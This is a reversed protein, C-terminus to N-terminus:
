VMTYGKWCMEWEVVRGLGYFHLGEEGDDKEDGHGNSLSSCDSEGNLILSNIGALFDDDLYLARYTGSDLSCLEKL